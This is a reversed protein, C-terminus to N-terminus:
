NLAFFHFISLSVFHLIMVGDIWFMYYSDKVSEDVKNILFIAAIVSILRSFFVFGLGYNFGSLILFLSFIIYILIKSREVGILNPITVLNSIKDRQVDRIDFPIALALIFLFREFFLMMTEKDYEAGIDMAPVFVTAASWVYSLIFVKILPFKRISFKGSTVYLFSLVGLHVLFVITRLPLYQMCFIVGAISLFQIGKLFDVNDARWKECFTAGETYSYKGVHFNYIILTAFFNICVSPHHLHSFDENLILYSSLTLTVASLSIFLYSFILASFPLKLDLSYKQLSM